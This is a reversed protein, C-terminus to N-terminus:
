NEDTGDEQLRPDDVSGDKADKMLDEADKDSWGLRVLAAKTMVASTGDQYQQLVERTQKLNNSFDRKRTGAFAGASPASSPGNGAGDGTTSTANTPPWLSDRYRQQLEEYTIGLSEAQKRHETEADLGDAAFETQFCTMGTILNTQRASATKQPDMDVPQDWHSEHPISELERVDDPLNEAVDRYELWWTDFVRDTCEVELDVQDINIAKYYIARDLRSSSFNYGSSDGTVINRSMSVPRASMALMGQTFENFGTIPHEAKMQELAYGEPLTTIADEPLPMSEWPEGPVFEEPATQTKLIGTHGAARRAALLTASAFGRVMAFTTLSSTMEPVGRHQGPREVLFLHIIYDADIWEYDLPNRYVAAGPHTKLCCYAIPNGYQDFKIGDVEDPEMGTWAPNTFHDCEMPRFDLKVIHKIKPNTTLKAFVEGDKARSQRMVRLRSAFRIQKCWEHFDKAIQKNVDPLNPLLCRVRPGNGVTDTGLTRVIGCAHPNNACELRSRNRLITRVEHSNAADASLGDALSWRQQLTNKTLAADYLAEINRSSRGAPQPAEPASIAPQAPQAMPEPARGFGFWGAVAGITATALNM